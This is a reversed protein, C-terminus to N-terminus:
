PLALRRHVPEAFSTPADRRGSQWSAMRVKWVAKSGEVHRSEISMTVDHLIDSLSMIPEGEDGGAVDPSPELDVRLERGCDCALRLTSV